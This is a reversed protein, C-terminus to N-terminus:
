MFGFEGEQRPHVGIRKASRSSHGYGLCRSPRQASVRNLVTVSLEADHTGKGNYPVGKQGPISLLYGSRM